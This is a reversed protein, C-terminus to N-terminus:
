TSARLHDWPYGKLEFGVPPSRCDSKMPGPEETFAAEAKGLEIRLEKALRPCSSVAHQRTELNRALFARHDSIRLRGLVARCCLAGM